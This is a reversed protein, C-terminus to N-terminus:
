ATCRIARDQAFGSPHEEVAVQNAAASEVVAASEPEIGISLPPLRVIWAVPRALRGPGVVRDDDVM